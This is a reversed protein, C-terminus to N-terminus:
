RPRRQPKLQTCQAHQLGAGPLFGVVPTQSSFGNVNSAVLTFYGVASAPVALPMTASTGASNVSVAGIAIAPGFSFTAGTLNVGTVLINPTVIGALVSKPTIAVITPVALVTVPPITIAASGSSTVTVGGVTVSILGSTANAPVQVVLTTNTASIVTGPAGNFLVQNASPTTSFGIGQITITALPTTRLPTINLIALATLSITSQTVQLINGVADYSYTAANGSPDIVTTLHGLDDYFAQSAIATQAHLSGAATLSLFVSLWIGTTGRRPKRVKNGWEPDPDWRPLTPNM